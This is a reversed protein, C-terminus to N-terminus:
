NLINAAFEWLTNILDKDGGTVLQKYGQATGQSPHMHRRLNYPIVGCPRARARRHSSGWWLPPPWLTTAAVGGRSCCSSSSSSSNGSSGSSHCHRRHRRTPCQRRVGAACHGAEVADEKSLAVCKFIPHYDCFKVTPFCNRDYCNRDYLIASTTSLPNPCPRNHLKYVVRYEQIQVCYLPM